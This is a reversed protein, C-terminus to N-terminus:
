GLAAILEDKTAAEADEASMGQAVAFEVWEAKTSSKTPAGPTVERWGQSVYLDAHDANVEIENESDPHTLTITKM